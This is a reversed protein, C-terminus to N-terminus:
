ANRESGEVENREKGIIEKLFRMSYRKLTDITKKSKLALWKWWSADIMM